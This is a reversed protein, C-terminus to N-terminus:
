MDLSAPETNMWIIANKKHEERIFPKFPNETCDTITPLPVPLSSALLPTKDLVSLGKEFACVTRPYVWVLRRHHAQM